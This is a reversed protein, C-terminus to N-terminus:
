SGLPKSNENASTGKEERIVGTEDIYFHRGSWDEPTASASWKEESVYGMRISYGPGTNFEKDIFQKEMLDELTEAYKEYRVNYLEQASSLTRLRSIATAEKLADKSEGEGVTVRRAYGGRRSSPNFPDYDRVKKKQEDTLNLRSIKTLADLEIRLMDREIQKREVDTLTRSESPDFLEPLSPPETGELPEEPAPLEELRSEDLDYRRKLDNYAALYERAIPTLGAAASDDKIDFADRWEGAQDDATDPLYKMDPSWMGSTMESFEGIQGFEGLEKKQDDTLFDKFLGGYERMLAMRGYAKEVAFKDADEKLALLGEILRLNGSELAAKQAETLTAGLEACLPELLFSMLLMGGADEMFPVGFERQLEAMFRLLDAQLALMDPDQMFEEPGMGEKQAKAIRALLKAYGALRKKFDRLKRQAPTLGDDKEAPAGGAPTKAAATDGPEVGRALLQERLRAVDAALDAKERELSDIRAKLAATDDVEGQEARPAQAGRGMFFLAGGAVLALLGVVLMIKSAM